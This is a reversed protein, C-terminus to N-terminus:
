AVQEVVNLTLSTATNSSYITYTVKIYYTTGAVVNYTSYSDYKYGGLPEMLAAGGDDKYAISTSCSEDDYLYLKTDITGNNLTYFAYTGDETATFKYFVTYSTTSSIDLTACNAGELVNYATEPTTGDEYEDLSTVTVSLTDNSDSVYLYYVDGANLKTVVQKTGTKVVSTGNVKYLTVVSSDNSSTFSYFKTTDVVLKYYTSSSVTLNTDDTSSVTTDIANLYHEGAAAVSINLTYATTGSTSSYNAKVIYSGAPLNVYNVNESTSSTTFTVVATTLDDTNYIAVQKSYSSTGDKTTVKYTADVSSTFSYYQNFGGTFDTSVTEGLTLPSPNSMTYGQGYESISFVTNLNPLESTTWNNSVTIYYTTNAELTVNGIGVNNGSHNVSILQTKLDADSYIRTSAWGTGSTVVKYDGFTNEDTTFTYVLVHSRSEFLGQITVTDGMVYDFAENAHDHGYTFMEFVFDGWAKYSSGGLSCKIYYTKGGELNVQKAIDDFSTESLVTQGDDDVISYKAHSNYVYGTYSPDVTKNAILDDNLVFYYYDTVAPTFKFYYEYFEETTSVNITGVSSDVLILEHAKEVNSGLPYEEFKGYLTCSEKVGLSLDVEESYSADTYWGRFIRNSLSPNEITIPTEAWETASFSFSVDSIPVVFNVTVKELWKAYLTLDETNTYDGKSAKNEFAADYYWGGFLYNNEDRVNEPTVLADNLLSYCDVLVSDSDTVNDNYVYHVSLTPIGDTFSLNTISVKDDGKHGANDKRYGLNVEDGAQLKVWYSGTFVEEGSVSLEQSWSTSDAKKVGVTFRDYNNESSGSYDFTLLTDKAVVFSISSVSSNVGENTSTLTFMDNAQKTVQWNYPVETGFAYDAMNTASTLVGSPAIIEELATSKVYLDLHSDVESGVVWENSLSADMYYGEIVKTFDSPINPTYNSHIDIAESTILTEGDYINVNVQEVWKAYVKTNKTLGSAFDFQVDYSSTTYWGDFRYGDKTPNEPASVPLNNYVQLTTVDSGGISDFVLKSKSYLGQNSEFNVNSVTFTDSGGSGSSDKSYEFTIQDGKTVEVKVSDSATGSIANVLTTSNHRITCKDWGSETSVAYDFTLVGDDLVTLVMKATSSNTGKNTSVYVGPTETDKFTYTGSQDLSFCPVNSESTLQYRITNNTKLDNLATVQEETLEYMEANDLYTNVAKLYNYETASTFHVEDGLLVYAVSVYNSNYLTARVSEDANEFGTLVSAFAVGDDVVVKNEAISNYLKITGFEGEYQLTGSTTANKVLDSNDQLLEKLDYPNLNESKVVVVGYSYSSLDEAATTFANNIMDASLEYKFRMGPADGLRVSVLATEDSLSTGSNVAQLTRGQYHDSLDENKLQLPDDNKSVSKAFSLTLITTLSALLMTSSIVITKIKNSKM